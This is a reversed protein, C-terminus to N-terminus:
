GATAGKPPKGAPPGSRRHQEGLAALATIERVFEPWLARPLDHGMGSFGVFRSEPIAKAIALGGTPAVLPDHLGHIVLTPVTIRRLQATRNPQAASAALQRRAAAPDYGRDWSRGAIDRVYEDDFAFGHSGILRFTEAAYSMAAHRDAIVRPRLLRALVRPTAQGVRRSGTSTMMLTLTRVRGPHELAVAQAIFGGMSAGVLHVDGLGLADILGVTDDAMDGISYPAPRRRVLVDALRPPPVNRLHTSGGVDRNDFRIVFHGCRALGECMEDPWAIMQTALGMILVVPPGSADGFTEYALEIGNAAVRGPTRAAVDEM